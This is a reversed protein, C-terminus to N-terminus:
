MKYNFLLLLLITIITGALVVEAVTWLWDVILVGYPKTAPTPVPKKMNISSAREIMIMRM